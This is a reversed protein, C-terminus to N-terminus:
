YTVVVNVTDAYDGAPVFQNGPIRGYVTYAQGVGSGTASAVVFASSRAAENFLGYNLSGGGLARTMTRANANAGVDVGYGVGNTCTVTITSSSDLPTGISASYSGFALNTAAVVCASQVNATVQFTTSATQAQASGAAVVGLAAAALVRTLKKM